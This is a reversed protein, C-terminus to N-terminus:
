WTSRGNFYGSGMFARVDPMPAGTSWTNSASDYIRTTNVVTATANNEGGFVFFKNVNPAYVGSAAGNNLDPVPALSTWTNAVPDFRGFENINDGVSFSYGGGEYAFTGDSDMFGGYHDIGVPAAQTWTCTSTASPAIRYLGTSAPVGSSGFGEAVLVMGNLLLTATHDYRAINLSGTATWTGSAPDYLEANTLYGSTGVGEAVLVNGNPLLTATHDERAINLSGTATWTGSAPDYLEASAVYGTVGNLGGAMLVKGNQLLTATHERRATNLSGTVTWTGSAPDYLEASTLAGSTSNFGGAVLVKGNPLLTATHYARGINLSGTVSWTGTTPDYLEASALYHESNDLGGAVLVKGNQLLSETHFDHATNLDGTVTWTGGTPSELGRSNNFRFPGDVAPLSPISASRGITRENDGAAGSASLASLERPVPAVKFGAALLIASVSILVLALTILFASARVSNNQKKKM